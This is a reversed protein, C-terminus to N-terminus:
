VVGVLEEMKEIIWAALGVPSDAMAMALTQPRTMQQHCYAGEDIWYQEVNKWYQLMEPDEPKIPAWKM